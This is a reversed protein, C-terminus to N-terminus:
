GHEQHLISLGLYRGHGHRGGHIARVSPPASVRGLALLPFLFILVCVKM